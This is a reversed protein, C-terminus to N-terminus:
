KDTPAYEELRDGYRLKLALEEEPNFVVFTATDGKGIVPCNTIYDYFHGFQSKSIVDRLSECANLFDCEEVPDFIVVSFHKM